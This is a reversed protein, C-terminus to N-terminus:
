TAPTRRPWSSRRSRAPIPEFLLKVRYRTKEALVSAIALLGFRPMVLFRGLNPVSPSLEILFIRDEGNYTNSSLEPELGNM